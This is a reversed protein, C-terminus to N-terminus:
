SRGGVAERYLDKMLPYPNVWTGDAEQIGIHVHYTFEDAHGPEVGYGTNGVTAITDGAAVRTGVTIGPAFSRVHGYFWYRGDTGRIGVRWGSYFTWGVAEVRGGIVARIPTGPEAFIDNGEHLGVLQWRGDIFRMRPAHWDNAFNIVSFWNSRAVPFVLGDRAVPAFYGPSSQPPRASSPVAGLWLVAVALAIRGILQM